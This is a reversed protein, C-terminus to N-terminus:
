SAEGKAQDNTLAARIAAAILKATANRANDREDREDAIIFSEAIEAAEVQGANTAALAAIALDAQELFLERVHSAMDEWEYDDWSSDPHRALAKAVVIRSEGTAGKEPEEVPTPTSLAAIAYDLAWQEHRGLMKEDRKFRQLFYTAREPTMPGVCGERAAEPMLAKDPAPTGFLELVHGIAKNYGRDREDRAPGVLAEIRPRLAEALAKDDNVADPTPSSPSRTNWLNICKDLPRPNFARVSCGCDTCGLSQGDRIWHSKIKGTGDAGCLPCERLKVPQEQESPM